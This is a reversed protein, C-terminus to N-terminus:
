LIYSKTTYGNNKASVALNKIGVIPMEYSYDKKFQENADFNKRYCSGEFCINVSEVAKSEKNTFICEINISEGVYVSLKDSECDIDIPSLESEEVPVMSHFFNYDYIQSTKEANFSDKIVASDSFFKFPFTYIYGVKLNSNVKVIFYEKKSEKPKLLVNRYRDDMNEINQTAALQIPAVVYHNQNNIVTLTILNYSGFGVKNKEIDVDMSIFSGKRAGTDLVEVDSDINGGNISFYKGKANYSASSTTADISEKLKIHSADVWGFQRYTVDFPVWGVDPFYVEAWGHPGWPDEFKELNTYSVGSVFRVPIGVARNLSMFLSTLEDCVGTRTNMVWSSKQAAEITTTTLDYKVNREVWDAFAFVVEFLDDKGASLESALDSIDDNIDIIEQPSIYPTFESSLDTIPFDTKKYVRKNFATTKVVSEVHVDLRKSKPNVFHFILVDDYNEVSPETTMDQVEQRYDNRPFWHLIIDAETVYYDSSTSQIDMYNDMTHRLVLSNYDFWEMASSFPLTLLLILFLLKKM